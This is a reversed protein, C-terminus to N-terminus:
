RERVLHTISLVGTSHVRCTAMEVDFSSEGALELRDDKCSEISADFHIPCTKGNETYTTNTLGVLKDGARTLATRFPGYPTGAGGAAYLPELLLMRKDDHIRFRFRTDDEARWTGSLDDTCRMVKRTCGAALLLLVGLLIRTL